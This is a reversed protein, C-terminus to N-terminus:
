TKSQITHRNSNPATNNSMPMTGSDRNYKMMKLNWTDRNKSFESEWLNVQDWAKMFAAMEVMCAHFLVDQCEEVFYNTTTTTSLKTPKKTFAVEYTYAGAPTPAVRFSNLGDDSYYKPVGTNASVAWYDKLFSSTKKKLVKAKGDAVISVYDAFQYETPKSFVANSATLSGTAKEELEPLELEKFLREEALDIATPIYAAFETGDDEAKDKIAQVLTSYNTIKAM